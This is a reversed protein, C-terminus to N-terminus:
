SRHGQLAGVPLQARSMYGREVSPIVQGLNGVVNCGTVPCRVLEVDSIRGGLHTAIHRESLDDDTDVFRLDCHVCRYEQVRVTDSAGFNVLPELHELFKCTEAVLIVADAKVPQDFAIPLGDDQGHELMFSECNHIITRDLGAETMYRVIDAVDYCCMQTDYRIFSRSGQAIAFLREPTASAIRSTAYYYTAGCYGDKSSAPQPVSLFCSYADTDISSLRSAPIARLSPQPAQRRKDNHDVVTNPRKAPIIASPKKFARERPTEISSVPQRQSSTAVNASTMSSSISRDVSFMFAQVSSGPTSGVSPPRSTATSKKVLGVIRLIEQRTVKDVNVWEPHDSMFSELQDRLDSDSIWSRDTQNFAHVILALRRITVDPDADRPGRRGLGQSEYAPLEDM